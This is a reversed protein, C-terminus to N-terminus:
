VSEGTIFAFEEDTIKGETNMEILKEITVLKSGKEYLGKLGRVYFSFEM